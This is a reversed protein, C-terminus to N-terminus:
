RRGDVFVERLVDFSKLRPFNPIHLRYYDMILEVCRNREEHSMRLLRMTSYDLRMLLAIKSAEDPRIFDDHPPRRQIFCGGRMDFFADEAAHDLNPFFGAFRALRAMFVIHFNAFGDRCADLWMVSDEVFRFLAVNKQEARTAYCVFEAVFLAIALKRGDFPISVFPSCVAMERMKQVAASRRSDFVVELLALPQLLRTDVGSRRSRPRSQVFTVRGCEETLMDAFLRADGYKTTRLM